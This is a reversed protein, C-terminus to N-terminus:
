FLNRDAEALEDLEKSRTAYKGKADNWKFTARFAKDTLGAPTEDVCREDSESNTGLSRTIVATVPWYGKAAPKSTLKLVEEQYVHCAHVGFILFSAAVELKGDRVFVLDQGSYTQQSNFHNSDVLMAEDTKSIRLPDGTLNTFRDTDVEAADILKPQAEDTFVSLLAYTGLTGGGGLDSLLWL